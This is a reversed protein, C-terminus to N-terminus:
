LSGCSVPVSLRDRWRTIYFSTLFGSLLKLFGGPRSLGDSLIEPSFIFLFTKEQYYFIHEAFFFLFFFTFLFYIVGVLHTLGTEIRNKGTGM